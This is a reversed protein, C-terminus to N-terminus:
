KAAAEKIQVKDYVLMCVMPILCVVAAVVFSVTYNGTAAGDRNLVGALYNFLLSSFGICLFSLGFISGMNKSGFKEGCMGPYIGAPGSYAFVILFIAITYVAGTAFIMMLSAVITVITMAFVTKSRGVKDSLTPLVLRAVASAVGTLQVTLSAVSESVGRAAALTKVLPIIIMYAAPLFFLASCMFWFHPTKIAELVTYQKGGVASAPLNLSEIYKKGPNKVFFSSVMIIVFFLIGLVRFTNPVANEGLTRHMYEVIPSFVVVSLGFACVCIGAAFGRKHPLWRQVCNLSGSYALGVGSGGLVGYTVYMLWPLDAPIMSSLFLGVSFLIGGITVVLRPGFRDQITGGIFIGFVFMMIMASSIMSVASADWGYHNTVPQQFVSWMYVLGVSFMVVLCAVVAALNLKSRNKM